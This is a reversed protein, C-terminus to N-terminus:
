KVLVELIIKKGDLYAELISGDKIGLEERIKKPITVRGETLMQVREHEAESM